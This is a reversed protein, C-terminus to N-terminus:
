FEPDLGSQLASMRCLKKGDKEVFWGKRANFWLDCTEDDCKEFGHQHAFATLSEFSPSATSDSSHSELYAAKLVGISAVPKFMTLRQLATYPNPLM